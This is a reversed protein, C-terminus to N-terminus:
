IKACPYFHFHSRLTIIESVMGRAIKVVFMGDDQAWGYKIQVEGFDKGMNMYGVLPLTVKGNSVLKFRDEQLAIAKKLDLKSKIEKM